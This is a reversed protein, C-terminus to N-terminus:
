GNSVEGELLGAERMLEITRTAWEKAEAHKGCKKYAIAKALARNVEQLDITPM